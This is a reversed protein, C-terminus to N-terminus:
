KTGFFRLGYIFKSVFLRDGVMLTPIMSGSPIKFPEIMFTRIFLAILLAVVMSEVYRRRHSKRAFGVHKQALADLAECQRTLQVLDWRRKKLELHARLARGGDALEWQVGDPIRAKYKYLLWPIERNLHRATSILHKRDKRTQPGATKPAKKPQKKARRAM